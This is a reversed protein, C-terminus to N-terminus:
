YCQKEEFPNLIEKNGEEQQSVFFVITLKNRVFIIDVNEKIM